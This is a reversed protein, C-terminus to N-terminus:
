PFGSKRYIPPGIPQLDRQTNDWQKKLDKIESNIEKDTRKLLKLVPLLDKPEINVEIWKTPISWNKTFTSQGIKVLGASYLLRYIAAISPQNSLFNEFEKLVKKVKQSKLFAKKNKYWESLDDERRQIESNKVLIFQGNQDVLSFKSNCKPCTIKTEYWKSKTPYLHDPECFEIIFEGNGCRCGGKFVEFRDTGM